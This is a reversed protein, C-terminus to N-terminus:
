KTDYYNCKMLFTKSKKGLRRKGYSVWNDVARSADFEAIDPGNVFILLVNNLTDNSM